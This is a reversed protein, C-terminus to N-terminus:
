GMREVQLGLADNVDPTLKGTHKAHEHICCQLYKELAQLDAPEYARPVWLRQSYFPALEHSFTNRRFKFGTSACELCGGTSVYREALHGRRCPAGTYFRLLGAAHAAQRSIVQPQPKASM